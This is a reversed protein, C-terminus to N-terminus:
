PGEPGALGLAARAADLAALSEALMRAAAAVSAPSLSPDDERAHAALAREIEATPHAM